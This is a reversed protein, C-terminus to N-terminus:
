FIRIRATGAGSSALYIHTTAPLSGAVGDFVRIDATLGEILYGAPRRGLGHAVAQTGAGAFTVSMRNGWIHEQGLLRSLFTRTEQAVSGAAADALQRLMPLTPKSM